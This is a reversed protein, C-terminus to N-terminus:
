LVLAMLNGYYSDDIIVCGCWWSRYFRPSIDAGHQAPCTSFPGVAILVVVIVIIIVLGLCAARRGARRQYESATTLEEAAGATDVAISYVNSEINDLMGGQEHVLTGLDRFIESLEHIGTEIERIEAEREHILSEQYALEHPSLQAQMAQAQLQEPAAETHHSSTSPDEEVALKVSKVVTRLKEASVQQTLVSGCQRTLSHLSGCARECHLHIGLAPLSTKKRRSHTSSTPLPRSRTSPCAPM